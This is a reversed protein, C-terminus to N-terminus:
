LEVMSELLREAAGVPDDGKTITLAVLPREEWTFSVRGGFRASLNGRITKNVTATSDFEVRVTGNAVSLTKAGVDAGLARVRMVDLLRRVPGPITGFRDELESQMEGVEEVDLLMAIRRYLTMKQTESTVYEEPIYADVSVDFPPLVRHVVPQGKLEAVTEKVLQSYTEYGVAVIHGSQEAGLIDGAGRIELDRMAIRFGAGLSSFEELAKLRKQADETPVRDGPVLLYAFARHKYRGVRGRIQYLEALGFRDARDVIITNANPIDLGAGIITTCVLVNIDKRIFSAMVQELEGDGMQGHAIGVRAGPILMHIKEAVGYITQVRNHLYFVQGERVLEREIAEKVLEDSYVDIMTHIPLRDNPATNIVSLDRIGTLSLHLTRPIPTASLTIVDVHTRLEKLKEKQAVGFKQEEDIIVLGLKKFRVDKSLIRHTGIVVDVEGTNVREIVQKNEKPTRFRCVLDVKVPFDAMRESFTAYHQQALITTPVLIAVQFGDMVAKFAGRLAVETKGYGVDGCILRDMAKSSQMDSKIEDIARAQDPTEDYEFADEFESQWPTDPSFTHGPESERVAYLKVLREAMDRVAKKVKNKKRAWSAGGLKDVQPVVGEGASYKQILDIRTVPVYLMDGGSYRLALYDGSKGSFRRIGDFRGIGHTEHVIYDGSRLDAYSSVSVGAEFRRRTRRIYHRGFIERESFVAVNDRPSVFGKQLRGIEVRVTTNNSGTRYGQEQLIELLRSREGANNCCIVLKCSEEDWARLQKWFADLNGAWGTVAHMTDTLRVTDPGADYPISAISVEAFPELSRVFTAWSVVYPNEGGRREQERAEQFVSLPEDVVILTDVPLYATILALGNPLSVSQRILEKESRPLVNLFEVREVSRQTEPEFRRISEVIDGFFEIRYPLEGSIPFIDLIGGRVSVEGRQEVMLERHYGIRTLQSVLNELDYEEDVRISLQRAELLERSVVRQLISSIPAAVYVPQSEKLVISLKRLADMREAVIDDAPDMRDEPSVEWAPFLLCSAEGAWTCLDEYVGEAEARTATIIFVSRKTAVATQFAVLTRGSGWPGIIEANKRGKQVDFCALLDDVVHLRAIDVAM